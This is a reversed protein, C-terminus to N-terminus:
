RTDERLCDVARGNVRKIQPIGSECIKHSTRTKINPTLIALYIKM